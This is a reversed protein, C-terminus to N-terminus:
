YLVSGVKPVQSHIFFADVTKVTWDKLRNKLVDELTTKPLDVVSYQIKNCKPCIMCFNGASPNYMYWHGCHKCRRFMMLASM